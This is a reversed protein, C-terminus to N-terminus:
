EMKTDKRDIMIVPNKLREMKFMMTISTYFFIALKTCLDNNVKKICKQGGGGVNRNMDKQHYRKIYTIKFIHKVKERAKTKNQKIQKNTQQKTQKNKKKM